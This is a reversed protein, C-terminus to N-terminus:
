DVWADTSTPDQFLIQPLTSDLVVEEQQPPSYTPCGSQHQVSSCYPGQTTLAKILVQFCEMCTYFYCYWLSHLSRGSLADWSLAFVKSLNTLKTHLLKLTYKGGQGAVGPHNMTFWLITLTQYSRLFM